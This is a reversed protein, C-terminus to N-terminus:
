WAVRTLGGETAGASRIEYLQRGTSPDFARAKGDAAGVVVRSGDPSWGAERVRYEM